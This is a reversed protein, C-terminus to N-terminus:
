QEKKDKDIFLVLFFGNNENVTYGKISILKTMSKM